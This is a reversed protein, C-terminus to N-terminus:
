AIFHWMDQTTTKEDIKGIPSIFVEWKDVKPVFKGLKKEYAALAAERKNEDVILAGTNLYVAQHNDNWAVFEVKGSLMANTAHRSEPHSIWIISDEFRAFHLPTVLPTRDRNVTAMAGVKVTDLLNKAEENM